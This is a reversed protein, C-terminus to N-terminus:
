SPCGGRRGRGTRDSRSSRRPPMARRCRPTTPGTRSPKRRLTFGAVTRRELSGPHGSILAFDVETRDVRDVKVGMHLDVGVASAGIVVIERLGGVTVEVETRVADTADVFESLVVASVVGCRHHEGDVRAGRGPVPGVGDLFQNRSGSAIAIDQDREAADVRPRDVRHGAHTFEGILMTHPTELEM